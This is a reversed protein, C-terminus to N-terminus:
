GGMWRPRRRSVNRHRSPLRNRRARSLTLRARPRGRSGARAASLGSRSSSESSQSLAFGFAAPLGGSAGTGPFAARPIRPGGERSVAALVAISRRTALTACAAGVGCGGRGRLASRFANADPAGCPAGDRVKTLPCALGAVRPCPLRAYGAGMVFFVPACARGKSL